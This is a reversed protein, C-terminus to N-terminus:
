EKGFLTAVRTNAILGLMVNIKPGCNSWRVLLDRINKGICVGALANNKVM